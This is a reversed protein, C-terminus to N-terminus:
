AGGANAIAKRLNALGLAPMGGMSGWDIKDFKEITAKAAHLLDNRQIMISVCETTNGTFCVNPISELFETELGACANVCAVVREANRMALIVGVGKALAANVIWPADNEIEKISWPEPTHQADM